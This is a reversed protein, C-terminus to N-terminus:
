ITRAPPCIKSMAMAGNPKRARYATFQHARAKKRSKLEPEIALIGSLFVPDRDPFEAVLSLSGGM